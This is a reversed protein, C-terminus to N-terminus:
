DGDALEMNVHRVIDYANAEIQRVLELAEGSVHRRIAATDRGVEDVKIVAFLVIDRLSQESLTAIAKQRELIDIAM